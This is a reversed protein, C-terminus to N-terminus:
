DFIIIMSKNIRPKPYLKSLCYNANYKLDNELNNKRYETVSRCYQFFRKKFMASGEKYNPHKEKTFEIIQDNNDKIIKKIEEIQENM